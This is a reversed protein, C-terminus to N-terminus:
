EAPAIVAGLEGTAAIIVHDLNPIKCIWGRALTQPCQHAVSRVVFLACALVDKHFVRVFMFNWKDLSIRVTGHRTMPVHDAGNTETEVALLEGAATM